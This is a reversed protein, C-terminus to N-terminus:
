QPPPQLDELPGIAVTTAQELPYSALLAAVDDATVAAVAELDEDLSRYRGRYMWDGALAFLRGAPREGSLVMRSRFKNKATELEGPSVGQQGAARYVGALRRLNEEILNPECGLSTMMVGAGEHERYGVAVHDALGPDVLEWYLRSGSEDGLVMSLLEAAFRERDTAKPAPSLMLVYQQTAIPKTLVHFGQRPEAPDLRRLAGGPEWGGCCRRASDVLADFDVRGAAALVVNSSFAEM